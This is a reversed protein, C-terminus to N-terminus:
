DIMVQSLVEAARRQRDASGHAYTSLALMGGDAHGLIEATDRPNVGAAILETAAFHRLSHMHVQPMGLKVALRHVASSLSDPNLPRTGDPFASVLFADDVLRVGADEARAISTARWQKLHAVGPPAIAVWRERGSKTKKEGRQDGARFLSRGIRISEGDWDSWRLACLEGRRAGTLVALALLMGWREDAAGAAALLARVQDPSPVELTRQGLEPPQAREAPNRDLWGWRVAQGLSASLVAHHRRISAPALAGLRRPKAGKNRGPIARREGTALKRYLEDLHRPTLDGVPVDGLEPFIVTEASRRAEHLTKPSRGRAESHRLWENIVTRLTATPGVEGVGDLEASWQNLATQAASRNRAEVTKTLQKPAGTVPDTGVFVRLQWKGASRERVSGTGKPRRRAQDAKSTPIGLIYAM